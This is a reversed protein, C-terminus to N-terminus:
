MDFTTKSATRQLELRPEINTDALQLTGKMQQPIIDTSSGLYSYLINVDHQLADIKSQRARILLRVIDQKAVRFKNTVETPSITKCQKESAKTLVDNQFALKEVTLQKGDKDFWTLKM